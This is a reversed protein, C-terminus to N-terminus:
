AEGNGRVRFLDARRIRVSRGIRLCPLRGDAIARRIVHPEVRAWAAAEPISMAWEPREELRRVILDVLKPALTEALADIEDSDWRM